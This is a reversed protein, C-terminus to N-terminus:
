RRSRTRRVKRRRATHRRKPAASLTAGKVLCRRSVEDRLKVAVERGKLFTRADADTGYMVTFDMPDKIKDPTFSTKDLLENATFYYADCFGPTFGKTLIAKARGTLKEVEYVLARYKATSM